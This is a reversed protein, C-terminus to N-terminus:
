QQQCGPAVPEDATESSRTDHPQLLSAAPRADARTMGACSLASVAEAGARPAMSEVTCARGVGPSRHLARAAVYM